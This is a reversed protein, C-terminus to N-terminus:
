ISLMILSAAGLVAGLIQRKLFKEKLFLSSFLFSLVISMGTNIPSSISIAMLTNIILTLMNTVGNTFGAATAWLLTHSSISKVNGKSSILGMILLVSVSLGLSLIMFESDCSGEFNLQQMKKIVTFFGNTLTALIIFVLWKISFKGNEAKTDGRSLYLSVAMIILAIYTLLSAPENLFVIGYIIPVVVFYSNIMMSIAFPGTALAYYICILASSFCIASPVAYLWLTKPANWGDSNTVVFFLMSALSMFGNFWFVSGSGKEGNKKILVGELLGTCVSLFIFLIGM